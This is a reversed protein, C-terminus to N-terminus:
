RRLRGVDLPHAAPRDLRGCRRYQDRAPPRRRRPDAGRHIAGPLAGGPPHPSAATAPLRLELSSPLLRGPNEAARSLRPSSPISAVGAFAVTTRSARTLPAPRSPTSCRVADLRHEQRRRPAARGHLRVNRVVGPGFRRRRPRHGERRRGYSVPVCGAARRLAEEDKDHRSLQVYAAWGLLAALALVFRTMLSSRISRCSVRVPAVAM